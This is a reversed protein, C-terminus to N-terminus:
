SRWDVTSVEGGVITVVGAPTNDDGWITYEGARIEPYIASFETLEGIRREHVQNHFRHTDHEIPSLEIEDGRREPGTYIILAGIDGGIDLVVRETHVHDDYHETTHVHAHEGTHDHHHEAM